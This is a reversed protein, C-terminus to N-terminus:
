PAVVIFDLDLVQGSGPGLDIRLVLYQVATLAAKWLTDTSLDRRQVEWDGRRYKTALGLLRAQPVSAEGGALWGLLFGRDPAAGSRRLRVVIQDFDGPARAFPLKISVVGAGQIRLARVVGDSYGWDLDPLTVLTVETPASASVEVGELETFDWRGPRPLSQQSEGGGLRPNICTPECSPDGGSGGGSSGGSPLATDDWFVNDIYSNTLRCGPDRCYEYLGTGAIPTYHQSWAWSPHNHWDGTRTSSLDDMDQGWPPAARDDTGNDGRFKRFYSVDHPGIVGITTFPWEHATARRAWLHSAELEPQNIWQLRYAAWYSYGRISPPEQATNDTPYYGIAPPTGVAVKTGHGM